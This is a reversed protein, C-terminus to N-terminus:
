RTPSQWLVHGVFFPGLSALYQSTQATRAWVVARSRRRGSAAHLRSPRWVPDPRYVASSQSVM